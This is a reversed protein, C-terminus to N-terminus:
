LKGPPNLKSDAGKLNFESYAYTSPPFFESM